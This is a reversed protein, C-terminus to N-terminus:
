FRRDRDGFQAPSSLDEYLDFYGGNTFNRVFDRSTATKDQDLVALPLHKVDFSVAYGFLVLFFVPFFLIMLLTRPDRMIHIFEKKAIVATLNSMIM